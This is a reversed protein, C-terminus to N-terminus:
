AKTLVATHRPNEMKKALAVQKGLDESRIFDTVKGNVSYIGFM